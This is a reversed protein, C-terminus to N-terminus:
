EGISYNLTDNGSEEPKSGDYAKKNTIDGTELNVTGTVYCNEPVHTM